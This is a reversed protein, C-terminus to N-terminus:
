DWPNATKGVTAPKSPAAKAAPKAAGSPKSEPADFLFSKIKNSAAYGDRAAEVGVVANFPKNILKDTDDVDPKGCATAWAVLQQRGIKQAKESSNHINFINWVWRGAFDGKTVEFKAKIYSGSGSATDKEECELAMLQYEGEPIPDFSGRENVDVEKTDFGFKAM